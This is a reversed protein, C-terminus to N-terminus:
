RGGFERSEKVIPIGDDDVDDKEEVAADTTHRQIYQSAEADFWEKAQSANAGQVIHLSTAELSNLSTSLAEFSAAAIEIDGGHSREKDAFDVKIVWMMRKPKGAENQGSKERGALLNSLKWQPAIESVTKVYEEMAEKRKKGRQGAWARRKLQELSQKGSVKRSSEVGPCDGHRAQMMLAFLRLKASPHLVKVGDGYRVFRAAKVFSEFTHELTGKKAKGRIGERSVGTEDNEKKKKM